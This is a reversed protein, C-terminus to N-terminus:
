TRPRTATKPPSQLPINFENKGSQVTFRLGSTTPNDYKPDTIRRAGQPASTGAVKVLQSASCAIVYDGPPVGTQSGTSLSYNGNEDVLAIAAPGAGSAPQFKVTVRVDSGARLPQGDLTVQGSVRSLGNGCGNLAAVFLPALLVIAYRLIVARGTPFAKQSSM